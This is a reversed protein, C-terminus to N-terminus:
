CRVDHLQFGRGDGTWFILQQGVQSAAIGVMATEDALLAEARALLQPPMKVAGFVPGLLVLSRFAVTVEHAHDAVTIRIIDVAVHAVSRGPLM